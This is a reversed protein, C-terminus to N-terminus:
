FISISPALGEQCSGVYRLKSCRGCSFGWPATTPAVGVVVVYPLLSIGQSCPGMPAWPATNAGCTTGPMERVHRVHRIHRVHRVHAARAARARPLFFFLLFFIIGCGQSLVAARDSGEGM